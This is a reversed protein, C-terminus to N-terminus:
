LGDSETFQISLEVEYSYCMGMLELEVVAAGVVGVALGWAM